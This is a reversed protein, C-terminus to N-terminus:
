IRGREAEVEKYIFLFYFDYRSFHTVIQLFGRGWRLDPAVNHRSTGEFSSRHPLEPDRPVSWAKSAPRALLSSKMLCVRRNAHVERLDAFPNRHAPSPGSPTPFWQLAMATSQYEPKQAKATSALPLFQM